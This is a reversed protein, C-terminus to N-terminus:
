VRSDEIAKAFTLGKALSALRDRVLLAEPEDFGDESGPILPLYILEADKLNGLAFHADGLVRNSTMYMEAYTRAERTELATAAQNVAQEYDSTLLALRADYIARSVSFGSKTQWDLFVELHKRAQDVDREVLAAEYASYWFNAGFRFALKSEAPDNSKAILEDRYGDLIAVAERTKFQFSLTIAQQSASMIEFIRRSPINHEHAVSRAFSAEAAALDGRLMEFYAKEYLAFGLLRQLEEGGDSEEIGSLTHCVLRYGDDMFKQRFSDDGPRSRRGSSALDLIVQARDEVPWRDLFGAQRLMESADLFSEHLHQGICIFGTTRISCIGMSMACFLILSIADSAGKIAPDTSFRNQIRQKLEYYFNEYKDSESVAKMVLSGWGPHRRGRLAGKEDRFLEEISILYTLTQGVSTRNLMRAIQYDEFSGDVAGLMWILLITAKFGEIGDAQLSLAQTAPHECLRELEITVAEYALNLDLAHSPNMQLVRLASAFAFLNNGLEPFLDAMEGPVPVRNTTRVSDALAKATVSPLLAVVAPDDIGWDSRISDLVRKGTDSRSTIIIRLHSFQRVVGETWLPRAGKFGEHADEVIFLHAEAEREEVASLVDIFARAARTVTWEAGESFEGTLPLITVSRERGRALWQQTVYEVCSSKGSAIDGLLLVTRQANQHLYSEVERTYETPLLPATELDKAPAGPNALPHLYRRGGQRFRQWHSHSIVNRAYRESENRFADDSSASSANSPLPTAPAYLEAFVDNLTYERKLELGKWDDAETDLGIALGAEHTIKNFGDLKNCLFFIAEAAAVRGQGRVLNAFLVRYDESPNINFGSVDLAFRTLAGKKKGTGRERRRGIRDSVLKGLRRKFLVKSEPSSYELYQILLKHFNNFEASM